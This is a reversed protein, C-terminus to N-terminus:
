LAGTHVPGFQGIPLPMRAGPGLPRVRGLPLPMRARIYLASCPWALTANAGIRWTSMTQVMMMMVMMMMMLMMIM